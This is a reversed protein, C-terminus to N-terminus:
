EESAYWNSTGRELSTELRMSAEGEIKKVWQAEFERVETDGGRGGGVQSYGKLVDKNVDLFAHGWKFGELVKRAMDFEGVMAFGGAFAEVCNLKSIKGYNVPNTAIMHPLIREHPSKIKAFPVEALRAWSCDVVCIGHELIIERDAPSVYQSGTPTLVIGKFRPGGVRLQKVVGQRVMKKGSCKKPDCHNFDWMALPPMVIGDDDGEDDDSDNHDHDHHDNDDDSSHAHDSNNNAKHSHHPDENFAQRQHSHTAASSGRFGGRKSVHGRGQGM